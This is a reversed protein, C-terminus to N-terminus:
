RAVGQVLSLVPEKHELDPAKFSDLAASETEYADFVTLLKTITMLERVRRTLHLLKIQGGSKSTAVHAAVLEGLGSSDIYTVHALNLLIQNHGEGLLRRIAKQLVASGEGIRLNGDIDLITVNGVKRDNINLNNVTIEKSNM